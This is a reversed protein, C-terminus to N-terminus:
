VRVKFVFSDDSNELGARIRKATTASQFYLIYVCFGAPVAMEKKEVTPTSSNMSISKMLNQALVLTRLVVFLFNYNIGSRRRQLGLLNNGQYVVLM